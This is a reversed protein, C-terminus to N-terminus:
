IVHHTRAAASGSSAAERWLPRAAAFAVLLLIATRLALLLLERLRLRRSRERVAALLLDVAAWPTEVHRRRSWLNILWPLAAAALWGLMAPSAFEIAALLPPSTLM